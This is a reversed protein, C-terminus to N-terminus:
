TLWKDKQVALESSLFPLNLESQEKKKGRLSGLEGEQKSLLIWNLSLVALVSGKVKM